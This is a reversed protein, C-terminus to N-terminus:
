TVQEAILGMGGWVASRMFSVCGDSTRALSDNRGWDWSPQTRSLIQRDIHCGVLEVVTGIASYTLGRALVPWKAIYPAIGSLAVGNAAYLPLIPIKIGRFAASYREGGCLANEAVWGAFGFLALKQVIDGLNAM